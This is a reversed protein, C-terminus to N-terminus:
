QVLLRVPHAALISPCTVDTSACWLMLMRQENRLREKHLQPKEQDLVQVSYFRIYTILILQSKLRYIM